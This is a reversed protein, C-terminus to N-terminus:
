YLILPSHALVSTSVTALEMQEKWASMQFQNLYGDGQRQPLRLLLDAVGDAAHHHPIAAQSLDPPTPYAPPPPAGEGPIQIVSGTPLDPAPTSAANTSM